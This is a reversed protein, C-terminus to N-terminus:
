PNHRAHGPTHMGAPYRRRNEHPLPAPSGAEEAESIIRAYSEFSESIESKFGYIDNYDGEFLSWVKIEPDGHIFNNKKGQAFAISKGNVNILLPTNIYDM